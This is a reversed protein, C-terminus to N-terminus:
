VNTQKGQCTEAYIHMSRPCNLEKKEAPCTCGCDEQKKELVVEFLSHRLTCHPTFIKLYLLGRCRDLGGAINSIHQDNPRFVPLITLRYNGKMMFTVPRSIPLSQSTHAVTVHAINRDVTKNMSMQQFFGNFLTKIM